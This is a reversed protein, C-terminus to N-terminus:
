GELRYRARSIRKFGPYRVLCSVVEKHLYRSKSKYGSDLLAQTIETVNMGEPKTKLIRTICARLSNEKLPRNRLFEKISSVEDRLRTLEAKIQYLSYNSMCTTYRVFRLSDLLCYVFFRCSLGATEQKLSFNLIVKAQKTSLGKSFV